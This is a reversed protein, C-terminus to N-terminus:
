KYWDFTVYLDFTINRAKASGWLYIENQGHFKVLLKILYGVFKAGHDADAESSFQVFKHALEHLVTSAHAGQHRFRIIDAGTVSKFPATGAYRTGQHAIEKVIPPHKLDLAAWIHNVYPQIEDFSLWTSKSVVAHQWDYVRKKQSDREKTPNRM